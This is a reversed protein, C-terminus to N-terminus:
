LPITPKPFYNFLDKQRRKALLGISFLNAVYPIRCASFVTGVGVGLALRPCRRCAPFLHSASARPPFTLRFTPAGGISVVNLPPFPPFLLSFFHASWLNWSWLFISFFFFRPPTFLLPVAFPAPPNLKNPYFSFYHTDLTSFPFDCFARTLDPNTLVRGRPSPPFVSLLIISSRGLDSKPYLLRLHPPFLPTRQFRIHSPASADFYFPPQLYRRGGL